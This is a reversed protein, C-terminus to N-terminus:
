PLVIKKRKKKQKNYWCILVNWMEMSFTLTYIENSSKLVTFYLKVVAMIVHFFFDVAFTNSTFDSESICCKVTM